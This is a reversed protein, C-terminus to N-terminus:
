LINIIAKDEYTTSILYLVPILHFDSIIVLFNICHIATLMLRKYIMNPCLFPTITLFIFIVKVSLAFAINLINNKNLLNKQPM